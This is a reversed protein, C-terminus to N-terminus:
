AGKHIHPQVMNYHGHIGESAGARSVFLWAFFSNYVLHSPLAPGYVRNAFDAYLHM